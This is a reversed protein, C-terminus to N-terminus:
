RRIKTLRADITGILIKSKMMVPIKRDDDTLWIAVRGKQVFLGEGEIIPEVVLCRFKGAPVQIRDKAHVLVRLPYIKGDSFNMITFSQGVKLPMTRVYFFASLIDQTFRPVSFTDNKTFVREGIPDYIDFREARYRGEQIYKEFRWTFLGDMDIFSEVRDRVRYLPDLVESSTATTIVHYCPRGNVVQTDPISMTAKGAKIMGFVIDFELHEGVRFSRNEVKRLSDSGVNIQHFHRSDM